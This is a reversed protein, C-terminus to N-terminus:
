VGFKHHKIIEELKQIRANLSELSLSESDFSELACAGSKRSVALGLSSSRDGGSWYGVYLGRAVFVGLFVRFGDSDQSSMRAYMNEFLREGTEKFHTCIAYALVAAPIVEFDSPILSQQEEWTKNLSGEIPETSVEYIGAPAKEKAFADNTYWSQDYFLEPFKERVENLSLGPFNITKM